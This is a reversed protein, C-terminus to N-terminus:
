LGRQQVIIIVVVFFTQAAIGTTEIQCPWVLFSSATEFIVDKTVQVESVHSKHLTRIEHLLQSGKFGLAQATGYRSPFGRGSQDKRKRWLRTGTLNENSEISHGLVRGFAVRFNTM